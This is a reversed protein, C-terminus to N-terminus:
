SHCRCNPLIIMIFLGFVWISIKLQSATLYCDFSGTCRVISFLCIQYYHVWESELIPIGQLQRVVFTTLSSTAPWIFSMTVLLLFVFLLLLTNASLLRASFKFSRESQQNHLSLGHHVQSSALKALWFHFCYTWVSHFLFVSIFLSLFWCPCVSYSLLRFSPLSM